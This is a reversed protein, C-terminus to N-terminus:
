CGRNFNSCPLPCDEEGSQLDRNSYLTWIGDVRPTIIIKGKKLDSCLCGRCNAGKLGLEKGTM